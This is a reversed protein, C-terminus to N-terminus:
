HSRKKINIARKKIENLQKLNTLSELFNKSFITIFAATIGIDEIQWSPLRLLQIGTAVGSFFARDVHKNYKANITNKCYYRKIPKTILNNVKLM